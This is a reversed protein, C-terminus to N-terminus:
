TLEIVRHPIVNIIETQGIRRDPQIRGYPHIHGHVMIRPRLTEILRHYAEFGVHARDADDGVGQPPAHAVFVDIPEVTGLSRLRARRILSGVRRRQEKQTYQNPGPRYRISGGLGAIRLGSETVIRRDLNLGPLPPPGWDENGRRSPDRAPDHNGPVHFLVANAASSVFDLYDAPLDGCSIVLDPSIERLRGATLRRDIEDSVVLM